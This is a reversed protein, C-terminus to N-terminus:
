DQQTKGAIQAIAEAFLTQKQALASVSDDVGIEVKDAVIKSLFLRDYSARLTRDNQQLADLYNLALQDAYPVGLHTELSDIIAQASIKNTSGAPRGSNPRAGGRSSIKPKDSEKETTMYINLWIGLVMSM